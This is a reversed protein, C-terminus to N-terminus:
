ISREYIHFLYIRLSLYFLLVFLFHFPHFGLCPYHSCFVECVCMPGLADTNTASELRQQTTKKNTQKTTTTTKNRLCMLWWHSTDAVARLEALPDPLPTPQTTNRRRVRPLLRLGSHLCEYLAHFHEQPAAGPPPLRFPRMRSLWQPAFTTWNVATWRALPCRSLPTSPRLHPHSIAIWIPLHDSATLLESVSIPPLPTLFYFYFFPATPVSTTSQYYLPATYLGQDLNRFTNLSLCPTSQPKRLGERSVLERGEGRRGKPLLEFPRPGKLTEGGKPLPHLLHYGGDSASRLGEPGGQSLPVRFTRFSTCAPLAAACDPISSTRPVTSSAVLVMFDAARSAFRAAAWCASAMRLAPCSTAPERETVAATQAEASQSLAATVTATQAEATQSLAATVTATQAEATRGVVDKIAARSEHLERGTHERGQEALAQVGTKVSATFAEVERRVGGVEETLRTLSQGVKHGASQLAATQAAGAERVAKTARTFCRRSESHAEEVAAVVEETGAELSRQIATRTSALRATHAAASSELTAAVAEVPAIVGREVALTAAQTVAATVQATTLAPPAVRSVKRNRGTRRRPAKVGQATGAADEQRAEQGKPTAQHQPQAQRKPTAPCQPEDHPKPTAQRKATAQHKPKAQRKTTAHRKPTAQRMPTAHRKPTAQRQATTQRTPEIDPQPGAQRKPTAQPQPEAKHQPSKPAVTTTPQGKDSPAAQNGGRGKRHGRTSAGARSPQAPRVVTQTAVVAELKERLPALVGSAVSWKTEWVSSPVATAFTSRPFAARLALALNAKTRFKVPDSRAICQLLQSVFGLAVAPGNHPKYLRPAAGAARAPLHEQSRGGKGGKRDTDLQPTGSQPLPRSAAVVQAWTRPLDVPTDRPGKVEQTLADISRQVQLLLLRQAAQETEIRALITQEVKATTSKELLLELLATVPGPNSEVGGILLLMLIVSRLLPPLASLIAFHPSDRPSLHAAGQARKRRCAQNYLTKAAGSTPPSYEPLPASLWAVAPPPLAALRTLFRLFRARMVIDLRRFGAVLLSADERTTQMCGTITRCSLSWLRSVSAQLTASMTSWVVPLAYLIRSHVLAPVLVARLSPAMFPHDQDLRFLVSEAKDSLQGVHERFLLQPDIRLGLIRLPPHAPSPEEQETDFRPPPLTFSFHEGVPLVVPDSPYTASVTRRAGSIWRAETKSSLPVGNDDDPDSGVGDPPLTGDGMAVPRGSLGRLRMPPHHYGAFIPTADSHPQVKIDYMARHLEAMIGRDFSHASRATVYPQTGLVATMPKFPDRVLGKGLGM